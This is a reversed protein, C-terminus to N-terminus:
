DVLKLEKLLAILSLVFMVCSFVSASLCALSVVFWLLSASAPLRCFNNKMCDAILIAFPNKCCNASSPPSTVLDNDLTPIAALLAAEVNIANFSNPDIIDVDVLLNPFPTPLTRLLIPGYPAASM